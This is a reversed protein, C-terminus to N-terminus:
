MSEIAHRSVVSSHETLYDETKLSIAIILSRQIYLGELHEQEWGQTLGQLSPIPSTGAPAQYM